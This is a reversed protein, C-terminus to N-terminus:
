PVEPLPGAGGGTVLDAANIATDEMISPLRELGEGIATM